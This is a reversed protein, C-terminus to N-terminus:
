LSSSRFRTPAACSARRSGSPRAPSRTTPSLAGAAGRLRGPSRAPRARRRSLPARRLRVRPEAGRDPADRRVPRRDSRVGGRRPQGVRVADRPLRGRRGPRRRGDRRADRHPRVAPDAHGLPPVGRGRVPIPARTPRSSRARQDPHEALAMMGGSILHRTTENGAVLLSMNFTVLEAPSLRRGDVEAGVLLSVVDDAPNARRTPRSSSSSPSSSWSTMSRTPRSRPAVTRRSSRPTPGAASTAGTRRRARRASRLHGPGPAARRARRRPRRGRRAPDRRAAAVALARIEHEMREVARATFERNLIRRWAATSPRTWTCSRGPSPGARACRITSSRAAVRASRRRTAASRRPHRPLPHRGQDRARVRVGAGRGAAPRARRLLRTAPLLGANGPRHRAARAGTMGSTMPGVGRDPPRPHRPVPQRRAPPAAAARGAGPPRQPPDHDRHQAGDRPDRVLRSRRARPGPPSRLRVLAADRDLFGPVSRGFLEHQTADLAFYWAVDHEPPGSGRWRGTSCPARAGRTTSSSTASGCMAGCCRPRRSRRPGTSPVGPWRTPSPRYSLRVTPTGISIARGGPSSPTSAEIRFLAPWTPAGALRGSPDRRPRRLVARLPRRQEELSAGKIWRDFAPAQNPIHGAIAPMVMFVSGIWAADTELEVPAAAPIGQEAVADQVRAQGALDYEPFVGVGSPARRVVVSEEYADGDRTGRADVM